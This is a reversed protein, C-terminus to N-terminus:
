AKGGLLLYLSIASSVLALWLAIQHIRLVAPPMPRDLSLLAGSVFLTLFFLGTIAFVLLYLARGDMTKYLNHISVAVAIVAGVAILKHITFVLGSYPKGL